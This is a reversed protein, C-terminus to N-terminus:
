DESQRHRVLEGLRAFPTAAPAEPRSPAADVSADAVTGDLDPARPHPDMGLSLYQAVLEGLDLVGGELPESQDEAGPDVTVELDRDHRGDLALEVSIEEELVADFPELSVVCVPRYAMRAQGRVGILGSGPQHHVTVAATLEGIAEVGFRAALAARETDAAALTVAVEPATMRRHDFVRSFEPASM